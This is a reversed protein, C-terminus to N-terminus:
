QYPWVKAHLEKDRESEALAIFERKFHDNLISAREYYSPRVLGGLPILGEDQLQHVITSIGEILEMESQHQLLEEKTFSIPCPINKNGVIDEWRAIVAILANRLSFLNQQEWCGPVASILDIIARTCPNSQEERRSLGMKNVTDFYYQQLKREKETAEVTRGPTIELMQPFSRQLLIPSISTRQWDIFCTIQSSEPDVFINDLHLDPHALRNQQEMTTIYPVITLYRNLLSVYDEPTEPRELSRHFNM